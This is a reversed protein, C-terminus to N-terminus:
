KAKRHVKILFHEFEKLTKHSKFLYKNAAKKSKERLYVNKNKDKVLKIALDIYQETNKAIPPASIKMQKYIATSINTRLYNGPMTISPTGFIMAELSTNGGGFHLPVLLVDVCYSLSFFELLSLRKTFLVKKNLISFNKAWREKLIESWYKEKGEGGILVIYGDSDRKLIEALVKDFDPHLKFLTQPCGYLHANEPLKLESRKKLSAINQPPEFYTPIQNLCILKESYNKQANKEEFLITSLFYDITDIGTTETHGWSAIQVPALRSFALFYTTPSMGIDPYFIIDLNENEVQLQQEHIKTKLNIVKDAKIDIENKILNKKTKSTHFITVDFKKKNMNKILGGFLKGVTHNTLFESIFGLKIKKNKQKKINKATYNINPIIKRFLKCLRKMVEVNNKNHYALYYSNLEIENGPQETLYKYKKLQDIGEIFKNRHEDIEKASKYVPTLLLANNIKYLVNDPKLKLLTQFCKRADDVKGIDCYLIALKHYADSHNNDIEITKEYCSIANQFDNLTRFVNGLNNYAKVYNPKIKIAQNYNNISENYQEIASLANGLNYYAEALNPNIKIAKQFYEIAKNYKKQDALVGALNNYADAYNPSIEISKEFYIISEDLKKQGVLIAGFLNYLFHNNSFKKILLATKKKAIDFKGSKFYDLIEKININEM